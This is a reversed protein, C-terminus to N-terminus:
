DDRRSFVVTQKHRKVRIPLTAEVARLFPQLDAANFSGSLTQSALGADTFSFHLPHHREVEAIVEGLPTHDFILKGDVWAAEQEPQIKEISLLHGSQDLRRSEGAKLRQGLWARNPKLEVEGELVSVRVTKAQQKVAFRTGIDRIQLRDAQVTFPRFPEHAVTFLAEGDLLQMQRRCWTVRSSLRSAANLEIRSGDALTISQRQGIGTSYIEPEVRYDLWGGMGLASALILALGSSKSIRLSRSRGARAADLETIATSKIPNLNLWLQEAEAYADAHSPHKRLWRQFREQQRQDCDESQLAVFWTVAQEFSRESFSFHAPKM